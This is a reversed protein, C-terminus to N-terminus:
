IFTRSVLDDARALWNKKRVECLVLVEPDAATEADQVGCSCRLISEMIKCCFASCGVGCWLELVAYVLGLRTIPSGLLAEEEGVRSQM